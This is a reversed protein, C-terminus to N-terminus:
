DLESPGCIMEYMSGYTGYKAQVLREVYWRVLHEMLPVSPEMLILKRNCKSGYIGYKVQVLRQM